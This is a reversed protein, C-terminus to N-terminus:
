DEDDLEFHVDDFDSMYDNIFDTEDEWLGGITSRTLMFEEEWAEDFVIGDYDDLAYNDNFATGDFDSMYDNIFDTDDSYESSLLDYTDEFDRAWDDDFVVGDYKSTTFYKLLKLAIPIGYIVGFMGLLPICSKLLSFFLDQFYQLNDSFAQRFVDNM